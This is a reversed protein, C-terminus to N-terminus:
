GGLGGPIKYLKGSMCELVSDVNALDSDEDSSFISLTGNAARM